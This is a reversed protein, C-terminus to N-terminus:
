GGEELSDFLSPPDSLLDDEQAYARASAHLRPRYGARLAEVISPPTLVEVDSSSPRPVPDAYGYPTWRLLRDGLVLFPMRDAGVRVFSGTPLGELPRRHTRQVGGLLREEHLRADLHGPSVRGGALLGPNGLRWAERFEASRERMCEGCPRHGAALATAEDLFFLETYSGPKMVQRRRGRFEVRCIIWRKGDWSRRIRAQDDHLRGRNGMFTGRAPTAIVEGWPTVRNQRPM